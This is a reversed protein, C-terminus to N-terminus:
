FKLNYIIFSIILIDLQEMINRTGTNETIQSISLNTKIKRTTNKGAKIAAKFSMECVDDHNRDIIEKTINKDFEEPMVVHVAESFPESTGYKSLCTANPQPKSSGCCFLFDDLLSENVHCSNIDETVSGCSFTKGHGTCTNCNFGTWCTYPQCRLPNGSLKLSIGRLRGDKVCAKDHFCPVWELNNDNLEVLLGNFVSKFSDFTDPALSKIWNDMLSLVLEVEFDPGFSEHSIETLANNRIELSEVKKLGKWMKAQLKKLRNFSLDLDFIKEPLCMFAGEQIERISNGVLDISELKRLNKFANVRLIEIENDRLSISTVHSPIDNPIEKLQKNQRKFHNSIQNVSSEIDPYM